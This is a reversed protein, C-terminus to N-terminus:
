RSFPSGHSCSEDVGNDVIQTVRKARKALAPPESGRGDDSERQPDAGRRRDEAGEIANQEPRKGEMLGMGEHENCLLPQRSEALEFRRWVVEHRPLLLRAGEAAKGRERIRRVREGPAGFRLADDTSADACIERRHKANLRYESAAESKFFVPRAIVRDHQDAFNKPLTSEAAIGPDDAAREHQVSDATRDNPHHRLTKTKRAHGLDPSRHRKRVGLEAGATMEHPRNASQFGADRRNLRLAIEFRNQTPHWLM